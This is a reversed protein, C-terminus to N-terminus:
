EDTSASQTQSDPQQDRVLLTRQMPTLMDQYQEVFQNHIAQFPQQDSTHDAVTAGGEKIAMKAANEEGFQKEARKNLQALAEINGLLGELSALAHYLPAHSPDISLGEEFLTRAFDYNGTRIETQGFTRYLPVHAPARQIGRRFLQRARGVNGYRAELQGYATWVPGHTDDAALADNLLERSRMVNGCRVEMCAWAQLLHVNAGGCARAGRQFIRRAHSHAGKGVHLLGWAQWLAAHTPCLRLGRQFLADAADVRECRLEYVAWAQWAHAHTPDAAVARKFLARAGDTPASQQGARAAAALAAGVLLQSNRPYRQLARAFVDRSAMVRKQALELMGWSHWIFATDEASIQAGARFLDIARQANRGHKLELQGYGHWVSASPAVALGREFIARARAVNGRRAEMMGYANYAAGHLRDIAIAREFLRVCESLAGAREELLAWSVYAAASPQVRVSRQFMQKALGARGCKDELNGLAQLINGDRPHVQHGRELVRRARDVDRAGTWEIKAWAVFVTAPARPSVGAASRILELARKVSGRRAELTALAVYSEVARPHAAIARALLERARPLDGMREELQAWTGLLRAEGRSDSRASCANCGDRLLRRAREPRGDRSELLAWGRVVEANARHRSAGEFLRRAEDNNGVRQELLGWAQAVYANHPDARMGEAFLRRAADRNGARQEFVGFSHLLHVNRPCHSLARRFTERAAELAVAREEADCWGRACSRAELNALALWSHADGADLAVCERLLKGAEAYEGDSEAAKARQFLARVRKSSVRARTKGTKGSTTRAAANQPVSAACRLRPCTTPVARSANAVRGIPQATVFSM